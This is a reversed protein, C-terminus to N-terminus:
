VEGDLHLALSLNDRQFRVSASGLVTVKMVNLRSQHMSCSRM